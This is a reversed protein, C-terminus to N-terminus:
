CPKLTVRTISLTELFNLHDFIELNFSPFQRTLFHLMCALRHLLYYLVLITFVTASPPPTPKTRLRAQVLKVGPMMRSTLHWGDKKYSWRLHSFYSPFCNNVM